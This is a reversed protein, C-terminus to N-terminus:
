TSLWKESNDDTLVAKHTERIRCQKLAYSSPYPGMESLYLVTNTRCTNSSRCSLMGLIIWYSRNLVAKQKNKKERRCGMSGLPESNHKQKLTWLERPEELVPPPLPGLSWPGSPSTASRSALCASRDSGRSGPASRARPFHRTSPGAGWWPRWAPQRAPVSM